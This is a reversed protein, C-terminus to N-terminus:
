LKESRTIVESKLSVSRGVIARIAPVMLPYEYTLRVRISHGYPATWPSIYVEVEEPEIGGTLLQSEIREYVRETAGGEVASRRAADRATSDLVLQANLLIGFEVIGFLMVMVIPFVLVFEVLASGRDGGGRKVIVERMM